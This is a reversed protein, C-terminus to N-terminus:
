SNKLVSLRQIMCGATKGHTSIMFTIPCSSNGPAGVNEAIAENAAICQGTEDYIAMGIPSSSIIQENFELAALLNKEEQKRQTIDTGVSIMHQMQGDENRVLTNAWEILYKQGSRSLWYNTYTGVLSDPNNALAEFAQERIQEADEPPLVTDWPTKGIVEVAPYGSIEESAQNFLVIEGKRNLAVVLAGAHDIMANALTEAQQLNNTLKHQSQILTSLRGAMLGLEDLSLPTLARLDSEDSHKNDAAIFAQLPEIGQRLSRWAFWTGGVALALLFLWLMLTELEFYGTRNYYYGLLSTDILLPTVIGLMLLKVWLPVATVCIGHPGLYRGLRDVFFFFIPFATILVPPIIGFIDYLFRQLTYAPYGMNELSFAVTITGGMSYLMLSVILYWPLLTFTHSARLQAEKHDAQPLAVIYRYFRPVLSLAMLLMVFIYLGTYSTFVYFYDPIPYFGVIGMFTGGAFPPLFLGTLVAIYISHKLEDDSLPKLNKCATSDNLKIIIIKQTFFATQVTYFM